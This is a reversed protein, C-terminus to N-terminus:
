RTREKFAADVNDLARQSFDDTAGCRRLAYQLEGALQRWKAESRILPALDRLLGEFYDGQSLEGTKIWADVANQCEDVFDIYAQCPNEHESDDWGGLAEILPTNVTDDCFGGLENADIYDHLEAFSKVDAPIWFESVLVEIENKMRNIVTEPKM